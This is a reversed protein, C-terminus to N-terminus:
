ARRSGFREEQQTISPYRAACAKSKIFGWIGYDLPACDPSLPPWFNSQWFDALNAKCWEQVVKAKHGPASDQQWCYNSDPYTKDLWPKVVTQMVKLYEKTGVRLGKPFWFPPMKQGDSAIIGLMMASAPHKTQSVPPVQDVNYALYRNNRANRSLDVTKKREQSFILVMSSPKKKLWSILRKGREARSIMTTATLLQHRRRVYLDLGLMGVARPITKENVNLDKAMKRMSRTPDAELKAALGMLFNNNVIRNYRGRRLKRALTEGADVKRKVVYVFNRSCDVINVIENIKVQAHLLDAVRQRKAEM